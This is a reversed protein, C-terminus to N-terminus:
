GISRHLLCYPTRRPLLQGDFDAYSSALLPTSGRGPEFHYVDDDIRGKSFVVRDGKHSVDARWAGLGAIDLREPPSVGDADVRWIYPMYPMSLVGYVFSRGEHSWAIRDAGWQRVVRRPRGVPLLDEAVDLVRIECNDGRSCATYALQRGNPSFVPFVDSAPFHASTVRRPSGGDM